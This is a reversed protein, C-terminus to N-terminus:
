RDRIAQPAVAVALLRRLSRNGSDLARANREVAFACDSRIEARNKRSPFVAGDRAVNEASRVVRRARCATLRRKKDRNAVGLRVSTARDQVRSIACSEPNTLLWLVLPKAERRKRDTLPLAIVNRAAQPRRRTTRWRHREAKGIKVSKHQNRVSTVRNELERIGRFLVSPPHPAGSKVSVLNHLVRHPIPRVVVACRIVSSRNDRPPLGPPNNGCSGPHVYGFLMAKSAHGMVSQVWKPDACQSIKISAFTHRLVHPTLNQLRPDHYAILAMKQRVTAAQAHNGNEGMSTFLYQSGANRSQNRWELYLAMLKRMKRGLPVFRSKGGNQGKGIFRLGYSGNETTLASLPLTCIETIRLGTRPLLLMITSVVPNKVYRKVATEYIKLGEPTLAGRMTRKARGTGILARADGRSIGCHKIYYDMIQRRKDYEYGEEDAIPPNSRTRLRARARLLPSSKRSARRPKKM